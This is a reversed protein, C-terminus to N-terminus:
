RAARSAVAGALTETYPPRVVGEETVFGSVLEAPTVDVAPVPPADRVLTAPVGPLPAVEDAPRIDVPLTSADTTALDVSATPACVYLPVRHRAALVALPYTGLVALTDGNAGIREAGVLVADVRAEALAAGVCVDPVISYPVDANHLEWAALRAGVLAPRTEAVSVHVSRGEAVAAQVVALATGVTGGSIAGTSGLTLVSLPRETARPLEAAGLRGLRAHDIAAESGIADAEARIAEAVEDGSADRAAEWRRVVRNIAWGVAAPAPRAALLADAAARIASDRSGREGARWAHATLAVGYAALQGLVPGEALFRRMVDAVDAGDSCFAEVASRPLRRQDIVYLIGGLFRYPSHFGVILDADAQGPRAGNEGALDEEFGAPWAEPVEAEEPRFAFSPRGRAINFLEGGAAGGGRRVADAATVVSAAAEVAERGFARFFGRRGVASATKAAETGSSLASEAEGGNQIAREGAPIEDAGAPVDAGPPADRAGQSM